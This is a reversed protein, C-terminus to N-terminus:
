FGTFKGHDDPTATLTRTLSGKVFTISVSQLPALSPKPAGHNAHPSPIAGSTVAASVDLNSIAVSTKSNFSTIAVQITGPPKQSGAPSFAGKAKDTAEGIKKGISVAGGTLTVNANSSIITTINSENTVSVFFTTTLTPTAGKEFAAGGFLGYLAESRTKDSSNIKIQLTNGSRGNQLAISLPLGTGETKQTANSVFTGANGSQATYTGRVDASAMSSYVISGRVSGAYVSVPITVPQGAVTANQLGAPALSAAFNGKLNIVVGNSSTTYTNSDSTAAGTGDLTFNMIIGGVTVTSFSGNPVVVGIATNNNATLAITDNGTTTFDLAIDLKAVILADPFVSSARVATSSLTLLVATGLLFSTTRRSLCEM